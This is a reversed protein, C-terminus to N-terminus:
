RSAPHLDAALVADHAGGAKMRRPLICDICPQRGAGSYTTPHKGLLRECDPAHYFNDGPIVVRATPETANATAAFSPITVPPMNHRIALLTFCALVITMGTDAVMTYNFRKLIFCVVAAIWLLALAFCLNDFASM